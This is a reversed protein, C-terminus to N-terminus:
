KFQINLVNLPTDKIDRDYGHSNVGVCSYVSVRDMFEFTFVNMSTVQKKIAYYVASQRGKKCFAIRTRWTYLEMKHPSSDKIIQFSYQGSVQKVVKHGDDKYYFASNCRQYIANTWDIDWYLYTNTLVGDIM